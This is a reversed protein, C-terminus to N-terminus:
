RLMLGFVGQLVSINGKLSGGPPASPSSQQQTKSRSCIPHVGAAGAQLPHSSGAGARGQGAGARCRTGPKLSCTSGSRPQQEASHSCVGRLKCARAEALSFRARETRQRQEARGMIEKCHELYLSSTNGPLFGRGNNAPALLWLQTFAAVPPSCAPSTALCSGVAPHKLPCVLCLGLGQLM